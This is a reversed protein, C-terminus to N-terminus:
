SARGRGGFSCGIAENPMSPRTEPSSVVVSILPRIAASATGCVIRFFLAVAFWASTVASWPRFVLTASSAVRAFVVASASESAANVAVLLELSTVAVVVAVASAPEISKVTPEVAWAFLPTVAAIVAQGVDGAVSVKVDAAPLATSTVLAEEDSSSRTRATLRDSAPTLATLTAEPL